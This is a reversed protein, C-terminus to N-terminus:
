TMALKRKLIPPLASRDIAINRLQQSTIQTLGIINAELFKAGALKAGQFNAGALKCGHFSSDRLDIGAFDVNRWDAICSLDMNSLDLDCDQKALEPALHWRQRCREQHLQQLCELNIKPM